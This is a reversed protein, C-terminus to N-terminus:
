VSKCVSLFQPLQVTLDTGLVFCIVRLKQASKCTSFLQPKEDFVAAYRVSSARSGSSASHKIVTLDPGTKLFSLLCALLRRCIRCRYALLPKM